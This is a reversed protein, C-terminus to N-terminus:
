WRFYLKVSILESRGLTLAILLPDFAEPKHKSTMRTFAEVMQKGPGAVVSLVIVTLLKHQILFSTVGGLNSPVKPTDRNQMFKYREHYVISGYISDTNTYQFKM